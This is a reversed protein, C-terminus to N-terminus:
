PHTSASTDTLGLSQMPRIEADPSNAIQYPMAEAMGVRVIMKEAEAAATRANMPWGRVEAALAASNPAYKGRSFGYGVAYREM